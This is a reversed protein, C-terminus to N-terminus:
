PFLKLLRLAEHFNVAVKQKFSFQCTEDRSFDLFFIECVCIFDNFKNASKQHLFRAIIEALQGCKSLIQRTRRSVTEPIQTM